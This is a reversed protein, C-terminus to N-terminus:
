SSLQVRVLHLQSKPVLLKGGFGVRLNNPAARLREVIPRVEQYADMRVEALAEKLALLEPSLEIRKDNDRDQRVLADRTEAQPLHRELQSRISLKAHIMRLSIDHIVGSYRSLADRDEESVELTDPDDGPTIYDNFYIHHGPNEFYHSSEETDQVGHYIQDGIFLSTKVNGVAPNLKTESSITIAITMMDDYRELAREETIDARIERQVIMRGSQTYRTEGVLNTEPEGVHRYPLAEISVYHDEIDGDGFVYDASFSNDKNGAQWQVVTPENAVLRPYRQMDLEEIRRIIGAFGHRIREKEAKIRSEEASIDIGSELVQIHEIPLYQWTDRQNKYHVIHSWRTIKIREGVQRRPDHQALIDLRYDDTELASVYYPQQVLYRFAAKSFDEASFVLDSLPSNLPQHHPDFIKEHGELVKTVAYKTQTDTVLVVLGEVTWEHRLKDTMLIDGRTEGALPTPEVENDM